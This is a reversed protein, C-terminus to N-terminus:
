SPKSKPSVRREMAAFKLTTSKTQYKQEWKQTPFTVKIIHELPFFFLAL